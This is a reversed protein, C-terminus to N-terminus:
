DVPQNTNANPSAVRVYAIYQPVSNFTAAGPGSNALICGANLPPQPYHGMGTTDLVDTAGYAQAINLCIDRAKADSVPGVVAQLFLAAVAAEPYGDAFVNNNFQIKWRYDNPNARALPSPNVAEAKLFRPVLFATDAAPVHTRGLKLRWMDAADATQKMQSMLAAATSSSSASRFDDGLIMAGALALGIFLIVGIIGILVNSM